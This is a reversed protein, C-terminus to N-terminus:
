QQTNETPAQPQEQVKPKAKRNVWRKNPKTEPMLRPQGKQRMLEDIHLNVRCPKEPPVINIQKQKLSELYEPTAPKGTRGNAIRGDETWRHSYTEPLRGILYGKNYKTRYFNITIRGQLLAPVIRRGPFEDIVKKAITTDTMKQRRSYRENAEFLVTLFEKVGLGSTVGASYTRRRKLQGDALRKVRISVWVFREYKQQKKKKRM